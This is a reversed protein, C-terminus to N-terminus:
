GEGVEELKTHLDAWVQGNEHEQYLCFVQDVRALTTEVSRLSSLPFEIMLRQAEADYSPTRLEQDDPVFVLVALKVQSDEGPEGVLTLSLHNDVRAGDETPVRSTACAFRYSRVRLLQQEVVGRRELEQPLPILDREVDVLVYGKDNKEQTM